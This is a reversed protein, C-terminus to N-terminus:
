PIPEFSVVCGKRGVAHAFRLASQGFNAGIDYVCAGPTISKLWGFDDPQRNWIFSVGMSQSVVIRKGKLPGRRVTAISGFPYLARTFAQIVPTRSFRQTYM